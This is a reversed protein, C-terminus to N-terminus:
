VGKPAKGNKQFYLGYGKESPGPVGHSSTRAWKEGDSESDGAGERQGLLGCLEQFASNERGTWM